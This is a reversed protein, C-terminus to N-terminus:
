MLAQLEARRVAARTLAIEEGVHRLLGDERLRELANSLCDPTEDPQIRRVKTQLEAATIREPHLFQFQLLLLADFQDLDDAHDMEIAM